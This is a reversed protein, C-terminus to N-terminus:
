WFTSNLIVIDSSGCTYSTPRSIPNFYVNSGHLGKSTVSSSTSSRFPLFMDSPQRIKSVLVVVWELQFSIQRSSVVSKRKRGKEVTFKEYIHTISPPFSIFSTM